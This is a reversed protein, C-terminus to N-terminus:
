NVIFVGKKLLDKKIVLSGRFYIFNLIYSIKNDGDLM